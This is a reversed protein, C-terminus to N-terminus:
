SRTPTSVSHRHPFRRNERSLRSPSHRVLTAARRGPFPVLSITEDCLEELSLKESLVGVLALGARVVAHGDDFAVLLRSPFHLTQM